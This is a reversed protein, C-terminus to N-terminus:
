SLKTQVHRDVMKTWDSWGIIPIKCLDCQLKPPGNRGLAGWHSVVSPLTPRNQHSMYYAWWRKPSYLLALTHSHTMHTCTHIALTLPPTTCQLVITSTYTHRVQMTTQSQRDHLQTCCESAMAPFVYCCQISLWQSLRCVYDRCWSLGPRALLLRSRRPYRRLFTLMKHVGSLARRMLILAEQGIKSSPPHCTAVEQRIRSSNGTTHWLQSSLDIHIYKFIEDTALGQGNNYRHNYSDM